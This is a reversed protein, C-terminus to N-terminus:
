KTDGDSSYGFTDIGKRKLERRIFLWRNLVHISSFKNDTLFLTLVFPPVNEALPKATITYTSTGVTYKLYHDQIEAANRAPFLHRVPMGNKDLPPVFGVLENSAHDYCVTGVNRTADEAVWLVLPLKRDMLYTKLEDVRLDGETIKPGKDYIYRDVTTLSPIVTPLNAHLFEYMLLGGIIRIYATVEGHRYVHKSKHTNNMANNVLIALLKNESFSFVDEIRHLKQRM